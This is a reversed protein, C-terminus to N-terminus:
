AYMKHKHRLIKREANLIFRHIDRFYMTLIYNVYIASYYKVKPAAQLGITWLMGVQKVTVDISICPANGLQLGMMVQLFHMIEITWYHGVKVLCQLVWTVTHDFYTFWSYIEKYTVHKPIICCISPEAFDAFDWYTSIFDVEFCHQRQTNKISFLILLRYLVIRKM